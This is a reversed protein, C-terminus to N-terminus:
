RVNDIWGKKLPKRIKWDIQDQQWQGSKKQKRVMKPHKARMHNAYDQWETMEGKGCFCLVGLITRGRPTGWYEDKSFGGDHQRM